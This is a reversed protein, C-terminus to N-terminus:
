MAVLSMFSGCSIGLLGVFSNDDTHERSDHYRQQVHRCVVEVFGKNLAGAQAGIHTLIRDSTLWNKYSLAVRFIKAGM